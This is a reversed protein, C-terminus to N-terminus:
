TKCLGRIIQAEEMNTLKHICKFEVIIKGFGIYDDIYKKQITKGKYKIDLEVQTEFSLQREQSERRM